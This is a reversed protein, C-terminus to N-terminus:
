RAVRGVKNRVFQNSRCCRSLDKVTNYRIDYMIPSLNDPSMGVNEGEHRGSGVAGTGLCGQRLGNKVGRQGPVARVRLADHGAGPVQGCPPRFFEGTSCRLKLLIVLFPTNPHLRCPFLRDRLLSPAADTRSAM